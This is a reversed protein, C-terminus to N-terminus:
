KKKRKLSIVNKWTRFMDSRDELILPKYVVLSDITGKFSSLTDKKSSAIKLQTHEKMPLGAYAVSSTFTVSLMLAVVYVLTKKRMNDEAHGTPWKKDIVM